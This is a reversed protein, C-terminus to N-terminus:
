RRRRRSPDVAARYRCHGDSAVAAGFSLPVSLPVIETRMSGLANVIVSGGIGLVVLNEFWQGFGDALEQVAAAAERAETVARTLSRRAVDSSLGLHEVLGAVSAQYTATAIVDAGNELFQRCATQLLDPREVLVRSTWLEGEMNAGLRELQTSLGGDLMAFGYKEFFPALPNM